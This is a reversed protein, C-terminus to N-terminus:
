IWEMLMDFMWIFLLLRYILVFITCYCLLFLIYTLRYIDFYRSIDIEKHMLGAVQKIMTGKFM